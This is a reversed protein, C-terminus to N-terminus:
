DGLLYIVVGLYVNNNTWSMEGGIGNRMVIKARILWGFGTDLDNIGYSNSENDLGTTEYRIGSFTLGGGIFGILSEGAYFYGPALRIENVKVKSSVNIVQSGIGEIGKVKAEGTGHFAYGLEVGFMGGTIPYGTKNKYYMMDIGASFTGGFCKDDLEGGWASAFAQMGDNHNAILKFPFGGGFEAGFMFGSQPEEDEAFVLLPILLVSFLIKKM